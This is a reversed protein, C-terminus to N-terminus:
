EYMIQAPLKLAREDYEQQTIIGNQLLENLRVKEAKQFDTRTALVDLIAEKVAFKIIFYFVAITIGLVLLILMLMTEPAFDTM